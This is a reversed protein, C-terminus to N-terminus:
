IEDTFSMKKGRVQALETRVDAFLEQLVDIEKDDEDYDPFDAAESFKLTNTAITFRKTGFEIEKYAAVQVYGEDFGVDITCNGFEGCQKKLWNLVQFGTIDKELIRKGFRAERHACWDSSACTVSMGCHSLSLKLDDM